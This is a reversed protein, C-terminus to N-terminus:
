QQICTREGKLCASGSTQIEKAQFNRLRRSFCQTLSPRYPVVCTRSAKARGAQSPLRALGIKGYDPTAGRFSQYLVQVSQRKSLARAVVGDM